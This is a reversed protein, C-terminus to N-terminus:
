SPGSSLGQELTAALTRHGVQPWCRVAKRIGLIKLHISPLFQPMQLSTKNLLKATSSASQKAGCSYRASHVAIVRKRSLQDMLLCRAMRFPHIPAATSLLRCEMRQLLLMRITCPSVLLLWCTWFCSILASSLMLVGAVEHTYLRALKIGTSTSIPSIPFGM